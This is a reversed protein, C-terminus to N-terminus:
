MLLVLMITYGLLSDSFLIQSIKGILNDNLSELKVYEIKEILSDFPLRQGKQPDIVIEELSSLNSQIVKSSKSCSSFLCLLIVWYVYKM